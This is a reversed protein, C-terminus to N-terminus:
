FTEGFSEPEGDEDSKLLKQRRAQYEKEVIERERTYNKGIHYWEVVEEFREEDMGNGILEWVPVDKKVTIKSIGGVKKNKFYCHMDPLSQLEQIYSEWAPPKAFIGVFMERALIEADARPVRFYAQLGCNLLPSKLKADVQSLHQHALTLPLCYKRAETLIKLFNETAFNQFEDVYLHFPKRETQNTDTRAFAAMEISSLLLSGLLEGSAGLEGQSLNVLLFKDSDIIKRLDFTSKPSVFIQRIRDDTLFMSIKNLTSEAWETKKREDWKEFKQFFERCGENKVKPIFKRRVAADILLPQVEALTQKNEILAILTNLLISNMRSGWDKKWIKEFASVLRRAQLAASINGHLELPNFCVTYDKDTPDILVVRENLEEPNVASIILLDKIDKTMDGHPDIVGFGAGRDIDQRILYELFKTKGTGSGGVIYFHTLRDKQRVGKLVKINRNGEYGEAYGIALEDPKPERDLVVSGEKTEDFLPLEPEPRFIKNLFKDIGFWDKAM